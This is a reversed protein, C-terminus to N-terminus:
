PLHIEIRYAAPADGGPLDLWLPQASDGPQLGPVPVWDQGQLANTGGAVRYLRRPSGETAARPSPPLSIATIRPASSPDLPDTDAIFEDYNGVGDSDDDGETTAAGLTGFREWEWADPLGNGDADHLVNIHISPSLAERGQDDRALAHIPIVGPGAFTTNWAFSASATAATAVAKGQAYLVLSTVTGFASAAHVEATVVSGHVTHHQDPPQQIACHFQANSVVFPVLAHGQTRLASGEYAVVRLTHPGNALLTTDLLHEAVLQPEGSSLFATARASLVDSNSAPHGIYDPGELSSLLSADVDYEIFLNASEWTNTRAVIYFEQWTADGLPRRYTALAGGPVQLAPDGNVLAMLDEVLSQTTDDASATATHSIRTGDLRTIALHVQDGPQPEYRLYLAQRATYQTELFQAASARAHVRKVTATGIHTSVSFPLHAGPVGLETQLLELRDPSARPWFDPTGSQIQASLGQAIDPVLDGEAVTYLSTFGPLAVAVTNGAAPPAYSLTSAFQGDIFLDIRDIPHDPSFASATITLPVAGGVTDGPSLGEVEVTSRRAYPATLPDGALVSQYPNQVAMMAAEGLSFGRAYWYHVRSQTFKNTYNCPEVVTGLSGAFGADIWDLASTHQHATDIDDLLDGGFSTLTDGYAGPLVSSTGLNDVSRLGHHFGALNTSTANNQELLRASWAPGLQRGLFDAAHFQTWRVNRALDSTRMFLVEGAPQLGDAALSRDALALGSALTGGRLVSAIIYRGLSPAGQRSFAQEAEFYDSFTDEPLNCVPSPPDERYGYFLAGSIGNGNGISSTYVRFPLQGALVLYDIQSDLGTEALYAFIPGELSNSFVSTTVSNSTPADLHLIQRGPIGRQQAYYNALAQSEPQNRNAVVLVNQPGGGAVAGCALGLLVILPRLQPGSRM